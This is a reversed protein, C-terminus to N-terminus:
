PNPTAELAMKLRANDRRLRICEDLSFQWNIDMCIYMAELWKVYEEPTHKTKVEALEAEAGESYKDLKDWDALDGKTDHCIGQVTPKNQYECGDEQCLYQTIEHTSQKTKHDPKSMQTYQDLLNLNQEHHFAHPWGWAVDCDICRSGPSPCNTSM